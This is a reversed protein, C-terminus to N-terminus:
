PPTAAPAGAPVVAAAPELRRLRRRLDRIERRSRGGQLDCERALRYAERAAQLAVEASKSGSQAQESQKLRALGLACYASSRPSQRVARELVEIAKGTAGDHLHARGSAEAMAAEREDQNPPDVMGALLTGAEAVYRLARRPDLEACLFAWGIYADFQLEVIKREEGPAQAIQTAPPGPVSQRRAEAIAERFAEDAQKRDRALWCAWALEVRSELPKFGLASATKLHAVAAFYRGRAGQFQGLWFHVWGHAQVQDLPGESDFPASKIEELASEFFATAERLLRLRKGRGPLATVRSWFSAGIARLTEPGSDFNLAIEAQIKLEETDELTSLVDLLVLRERVSEPEMEVAHRAYTLAREILYLRQEPLTDPNRAGALHTAALVGYLGQTRYQLFGKKEMRPIAKALSKGARTAQECYKASVPRERLCERALRVLVQLYAWEWDDACDEVCDRWCARASELREAEGAGSEPAPTVALLGGLIKLCDQPVETSQAPNAPLAALTRLITEVARQRETREAASEGEIAALLPSWSQLRALYAEAEENEAKVLSELTGRLDELRQLYFERAGTLRTKPDLVREYTEFDSQKMPAGGVPDLDRLFECLRRLRDRYGGGGDDLGLGWQDRLKTALREVDPWREDVPRRRARQFFSRM